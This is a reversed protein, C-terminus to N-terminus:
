RTRVTSLILFWNNSCYYKIAVNNNNLKLDIFVFIFFILKWDDYDTAYGRRCVFMPLRLFFLQLPLYEPICCWERVFKFFKFLFYIFPIDLGICRSMKFNYICSCSNTVDVKGVYKYIMFCLSCGWWLWNWSGNVIFCMTKLQGSNMVTLFM